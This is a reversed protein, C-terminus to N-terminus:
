ENVKSHESETICRAVSSSRKCNVGGGGGGRWVRVSKLLVPKILRSFSLKSNECPKRQEQYFFFSLFPSLSHKSPKYQLDKTNTYWKILRLSSKFFSMVFPLFQSNISRHNLRHLMLSRWHHSPPWRMSSHFRASHKRDIPTRAHRPQPPIQTRPPPRTELSFSKEESKETAPAASPPHWSLPLLLWVFIDKTHTRTRTHTHTHTHICVKQSTYFHALM